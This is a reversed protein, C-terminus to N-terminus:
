SRFDSKKLARSKHLVREIHIGRPVTKYFVIHSNYEVRRLDERIKRAPRGMLPRSSLIHFLAQLGDFYREAQTVGWREITFAVIEEIDGAARKSVRFSPV